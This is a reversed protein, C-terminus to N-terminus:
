GGVWISVESFFTTEELCGEVEEFAGVDLELALAAEVDGEDLVEGDGEDEEGRGVDGGEDALAADVEADRAIVLDLLVVGADAGDRAGAAHAVLPGGLVLLGPAAVGDEVEPEAGALELYLDRGLPLVLRALVQDPLVDAGAKDVERGLVKGPQLELLLADLDVARGAIGPPFEPRFNNLQAPTDLRRARQTHRITNNIKDTHKKERGHKNKGKSVGDFSDPSVIFAAPRLAMSVTTSVEAMRMLDFAGELGAM